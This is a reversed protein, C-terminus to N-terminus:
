MRGQLYFHRGDKTEYIIADFRGHFFDCKQHLIKGSKIWPFVFTIDFGKSVEASAESKVSPSGNVFRLGACPHRFHYM